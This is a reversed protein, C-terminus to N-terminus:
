RQVSSIRLLSSKLGWFSILALVSVSLRSRSVAEEKVCSFKPGFFAVIAEIVGWVVVVAGLGSITSVVVQLVSLIIEM